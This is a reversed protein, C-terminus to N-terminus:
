QENNIIPIVKNWIAHIMVNIGSLFSECKGWTDKAM